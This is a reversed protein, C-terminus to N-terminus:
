DEESDSFSFISPLIQKMEDETFGHEEFIDRSTEIIKDISEYRWYKDLKDEYERGGIAENILTVIDKLVLSPYKRIYPYLTEECGHCVSTLYDAGTKLAEGILTKGLVRGMEPYNIKALGGCCLTDAKIHEMEVLKLGPIARLLKRPSVPDKCRRVLACSDHLTVTKELPKTFKIKDLNDSLFQTCFQVEFDLDLFNSIFEAFQRYCGPCVLIVRQPSFAQMCAVLERAKGEAERVKGEVPCFGAGCCLEGGALATFDVGMRELIDLFAFTRDPVLSPPFCGLFVVNEVQEPRSPARKLWRIENSKTQLAAFIDYPKLDRGTLVREERHPPKLEQEHLKIKAAENVLLPDIGQPCFDSCYGCGACAFAKLYAEESYVGVKLFDIMKQMIDEPAKDKLPTLPIM